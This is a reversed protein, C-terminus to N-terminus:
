IGPLMCLLLLIPLRPSLSLFLSMYFISLKPWGESGLCCASHPLMISFRPSLSLFLSMLCLSLEPWGESGLCCASISSSLSGPVCLCSYPCLVSPYSQGDKLDWAVRLSPALYPAQSVSAHSVLIPVISLLPLFSLILSLLCLSLETWAESKM